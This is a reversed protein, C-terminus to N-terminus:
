VVRATAFHWVFGLHSGALKRAKLQNLSIEGIAVARM